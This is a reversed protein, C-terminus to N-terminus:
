KMNTCPPYVIKKKLVSLETKALSRKEEINEEEIVTDVLKNVNEQKVLQVGGQAM